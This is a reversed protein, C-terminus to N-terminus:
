AINISYYYYYFNYKMISLWTLFFFYPFKTEIDLRVPLHAACFIFFKQLEIRHDHKCWITMNFLCFLIVSKKIIKAQALGNLLYVYVVTAPYSNIM